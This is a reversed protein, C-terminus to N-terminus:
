APDVNITIHGDYKRDKEFNRIDQRLRSKHLSLTKDKKLSIRILRIHQDSIKDVAPSYPGTTDFVQRLKDALASSM